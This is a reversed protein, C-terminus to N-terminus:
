QEVIEFSTTQKVHKTKEKPGIHLHIQIDGTPQKWSIIEHRMGEAITKAVEEVVTEAHPMLKAKILEKLDNKICRDVSTLLSEITTDVIM